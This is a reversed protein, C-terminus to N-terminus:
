EVTFFLYTALTFTGILFLELGLLIGTIHDLPEPNMKTKELKIWARWFMLKMFM